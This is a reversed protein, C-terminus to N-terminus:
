SPPPTKALERRGLPRGACCATRLTRKRTDMYGHLRVTGLRERDDGWEDQRRGQYLQYQLQAPLEEWPCLPLVEARCCALLLPLQTPLLILDSVPFAAESFEQAM